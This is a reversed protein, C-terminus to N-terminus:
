LGGTYLVANRAADFVSAAPFSFLLSVLAAAWLVSRLSFPAPSLEDKSPSGYMRRIIRLYVFALVFAGAMILLCPWFDGGKIASEFLFFRRWFGAFPPFGTMGLFILGYLAARVPKSKGQGSLTEISESLDGGVRLSLAVGFLGTAMVADTLAFFLFAGADSIQLSLLIFANSVTLTYAALRKINTQTLAGFAGAYVGAVSLILFLVSWFEHAFSLPYFVLKAFVAWVAFRWVVGAFATVPTPMGEYVPAVWTHFPVAGAKMLFGAGIFSLSPYLASIGTKQVATGIQSFEITGLSVYLSSIGFLIFSSSLLSILVYKAGAETSREGQRKYSALFCLPLQAAEMGLFMPLFSESCVAIGMGCVSFALLVPYEFRAYKKYKLWSQGFSLSVAGLFFITLRSFNAYGDALFLGDDSGSANGRLLFILVLSGCLGFWVLMNANTKRLDVRSYVSACLACLACITLFAEPLLPLLFHLAEYIM